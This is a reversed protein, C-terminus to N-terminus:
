ILEVDTEYKCIYCNFKVTRPAVMPWDRTDGTASTPGPCRVRDYFLQNDITLSWARGGCKSCTIRDKAALDTLTLKLKKPPEPPREKKIMVGAYGFEGDKYANALSENSVFMPWSTTLIHTWSDSPLIVETPGELRNSEFYRKLNLLAALFSLEDMDM